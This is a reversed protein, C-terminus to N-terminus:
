LIKEKQEKIEQGQQDVYTENKSHNTKRLWESTGKQLLSKCKQKVMKFFLFNLHESPPYPDGLGNVFLTIRMKKGPENIFYTGLKVLDAKHFLDNMRLNIQQYTNMDIDRSYGINMMMEEGDTFDAPLYPKEIIHKLPEDFDDREIIHLFLPSTRRKVFSQIDRVDINIDGPNDIMEEMAKICSEEYAMFQNHAENIPTGSEIKEMMGDSLFYILGDCLKKFMYYQNIAIRLRRKGEFRHPFRFIGIILSRKEKINGIRELLVDTDDSNGGIFHYFCIDNETLNEIETKQKDFHFHKIQIIRYHRDMMCKVVKKSENYIISAFFMTM